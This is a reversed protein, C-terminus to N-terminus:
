YESLYHRDPFPVSLGFKSIHRNLEEYVESVQNTKLDKTSDTDFLTKQITKWYLDMILEKTFSVELDQQLILQINFGAENLAEAVLGCYLWISRLQKDTRKQIVVQVDVTKGKAKLLFEVLKKIDNDKELDFIM